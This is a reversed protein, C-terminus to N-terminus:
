NLRLLALNLVLAFSVWLIYPILLYCTTKSVRFFARMTLFIALWLLVIVAMGGTISRGGFFVIPWLCNLGLQILFLGLAGRVGSKHYGKRWVLYAAIGMLFYLVTWIPGFVWDPPNFVPKKIYVYWGPISQSTFLGGIIGACQCMLISIALKLM